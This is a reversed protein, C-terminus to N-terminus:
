YEKNALCNESRECLRAGSIDVSCQRFAAERMENQCVIVSANSKDLESCMRYSIHGHVAYVDSLSAMIILDNRGSIKQREAM